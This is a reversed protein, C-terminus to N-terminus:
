GNPLGFPSSQSSIQSLSAAICTAKKVQTVSLAAWSALNTSNMSVTALFVRILGKKETKKEGSSQNEVGGAKRPKVIFCLSFAESQLFGGLQAVDDDVSGNLVYHERLHNLLLELQNAFAFDAGKRVLLNSRLNVFLQFGLRKHYTGEGWM